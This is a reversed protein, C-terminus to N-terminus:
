TPSIYSTGQQVANQQKQQAEMEQLAQMQDTQDSAKMGYFYSHNEGMDIITMQNNEPTQILCPIYGDKVDPTLMHLVIGNSDLVYTGTELVTNKDPTAGDQLLLIYTTDTFIIRRAVGENKTVENWIGVIATNPEQVSQFEIEQGMRTNRIGYCYVGLVIVSSIILIYIIWDRKNSNEM